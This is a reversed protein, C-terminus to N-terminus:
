LNFTAFSFGSTHKTQSIQKVYKYNRRDLLYRCLIKYLDIDFVYEHELQKEAEYQDEKYSGMYCWKNVIFTERINEKENKEKIAIPGNFPWKKIKKGSFAMIFRINYAAPMEKNICAGKCIGLRHMFCVNKTKEIGLLKHCLKHEKAISFLFDNAQKKSKFIGLINEVEDPSIKEVIQLSASYYKQDTEKKRLMFLRRGNRLKRNYLPQMEKVLQSEKFLAGLEGATIITEIRKVQQSIKMDTASSYDSSFHSLVREKINKSKGIYLPIENDGYFIYVGPQQPLNDVTEMPLSIPLSPRKMIRGLANNVIEESFEKEIIQFFDWLVKADDFARHRNICPINFHAIISDLNHSRMQPYLLRALKVTCFHKTSFSINYLSFEKKLFGLDFRVNHAVLITDELLELIEDKIDAFTPAHELDNKKIGTLEEVFPSIYMQPHILTQYTKTLKRNEVQVIGIEIIRDSTFRAGTTEIDLFSLKNTMM